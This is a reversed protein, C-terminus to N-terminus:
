GNKVERVEGSVSWFVLPIPLEFGQEDLASINFEKYKTNFSSSNLRMEFLNNYSFYKSLLQMLFDPELETLQEEIEYCFDDIYFIKHLIEVALKKSVCVYKEGSLEIFENHSMKLRDKVLRGFRELLLSDINYVSLRLKEPWNFPVVPERSVFVKNKWRGFLNDFFVPWKFQEVSRKPLEHLVAQISIVVGDIKKESHIKTILQNVENIKTYADGQVVFFNNNKIEKKAIDCAYSDKELMVAAAIETNNLVYELESGEAGGISLYVYNSWDFDKRLSEIQSIVTKAKKYGTEKFNNFYEHYNQDLSSYSGCGEDLVKKLKNKLDINNKEEEIM